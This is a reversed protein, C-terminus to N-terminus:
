LLREFLKRGHKGVLRVPRILYYLPFLYRPLPLAAWDRINTTMPLRICYRIKDQLREKSRLHFLIEERVTHPREAEWFLQEQVQRALAKVKPDAEIM